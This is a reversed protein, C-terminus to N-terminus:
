HAAGPCQASWTIPGAFAHLSVEQGTSDPHFVFSRLTSDEGGTIVATAQHPEPAQLLQVCQIERGHHLAHMSRVSQGAGLSGALSHALGQADLLSTKSDPCHHEGVWALEPTGPLQGRLDPVRVYNGEGPILDCTM